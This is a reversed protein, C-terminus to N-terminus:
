GSAHELCAAPQCAHAADPHTVSTVSAGRRITGFAIVGGAAAVLAAIRLATPYGSAFAGKATGTM